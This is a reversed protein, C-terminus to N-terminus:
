AHHERAVVHFLELRDAIRDIQDHALGVALTFRLTTMVPMPATVGSPTPALRSCSRQAAPSHPITSPIAAHVSNSGLSNRDTLSARRRSRKEWSATTAAASATAWAPQSSSGAYSGIRIPQTTAVPIPPM